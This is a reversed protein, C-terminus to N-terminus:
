VRRQMSNASVLTLPKLMPALPTPKPM